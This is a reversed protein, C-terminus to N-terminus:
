LWRNLCLDSWSGSRYISLPSCVNAMSLKMELSKRKEAAEKHVREEAEIQKEINEINTTRERLKQEEALMKEKFKNEQKQERKLIRMKEQNEKELRAVKEELEKM